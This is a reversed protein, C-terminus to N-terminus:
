VKFAYKSDSYLNVRMGIAYRAAETLAIIEVGQAGLSPSLPEALLVQTETTVAYGTRKLGGKYYLSGDAFLNLDLNGLSQDRM